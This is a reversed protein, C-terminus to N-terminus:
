VGNVLFIWYKNCIMNIKMLIYLITQMYLLLCVKEDNMQVGKNNFEKFEIDLDNIFFFLYFIIIKLFKWLQRCFKYVINIIIYIFQKFYLVM